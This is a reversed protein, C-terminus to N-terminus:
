PRRHRREHVAGGQLHRPQPHPVGGGGGGAAHRLRAAHDGPRPPERHLVGAPGQPRGQLARDRGGGAHDGPRHHRRPLVVRAHRRAGAVDAGDPLARGEGHDGLAPLGVGPHAGGDRAAALLPLPVAREQHLLRRPDAGARARVAALGPDGGQQAPHRHPELLRRHRGPDAHRRDDGARRCRDRYAGHARGPPRRPPAELLRHAPLVVPQDTGLVGAAAPHQGVAGRGGDRGPLAAPLQLVGGDPREQRPLLACLRDGAPRHGPDARRLVDGARRPLLEGAPRARAGLGLERDGGRRPVGGAGARAAARPRAASLRLRHDCLRQARRPDDARSLARRHLAAARDPRPEDPPSRPRQRHSPRRSGRTAPAVWVGCSSRKRASYISSAVGALDPNIESPSIPDCPYWEDSERALGPLGGIKGRVETCGFFVSDAGLASPLVEIWTMSRM